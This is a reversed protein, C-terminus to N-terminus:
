PAGHPDCRGIPILRARSRARDHTPHVRACSRTRAPPWRRCTTSRRRRRRDRGRGQVGPRGPRGQDRRQAADGADRQRLPDRVARRGPAAVEPTTFALNHADIVVAEADGGGPVATPAGSAAASPEGSAGRPRSARPARPRRARRARPVRAAVSPAETPPAYTWGPRVRRAPPPSCPSPSSPSPSRSAACRSGRAVAVDPRSARRDYRNGPTRGGIRRDLASTCSAPVSRRRGRPGLRIAVAAAEVRGSVGLKSLINGVHVGVTKQSIFLRDGIERNTRGQAILACSRSSASPCASRTARSRRSRSRRPRRRAATADIVPRAHGDAAPGAPAPRRSPRAARRGGPSLQDHARGALERLERLLPRARLGCRSAGRRRALPERADARVVRADTRDARRRLRRRDRRRPDGRGPALAGAGRPVPRRHGHWRAPSTRGRPRPRRPGTLRAHFARATALSAEPEGRDRHWRRARARPSRPTRRPSSGAPASAPRPSTASGGGSSRRPRRDGGRGRAGDGGDPGGAGLGRHGRLRAWGREAARRADALDGSWM